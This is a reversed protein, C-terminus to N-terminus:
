LQGGPIVQQEVAAVKAAAGSGMLSLSAASKLNALRKEILDEIVKAMEVPVQAVESQAKQAEAVDRNAQAQLRTALATQVPDPPAPPPMEAREQETPEIKGQQILQKRVRKEIEAAGQVDLNKVILDPAVDAIIPMRDSADMLTSVAEQRATAYAPGLTVAVGYRGEKLNNILDGGGQAQQNVTVFDEAADEGIVRVVRETDYVTPIMDVCIEWTFKVAKTLNDLYEYSGSDGRMGRQVLARGSEPQGAEDTNMAPNFYGTTAKIDEADQAALAILAQPVDPPPERTPRANPAEPDIDYELYPRNTLNAKQWQEERGKFMKATGIYPARPTLAALEVMTSRHYNYTRQPDHSHRHLSQLIQEGEINVYRGPVRIVPIFKWEYYIPGELIGGACIKWWGVKWGMVTRERAKTLPGRPADSGAVEKAIKDFEAGDMVRGDSLEVIKRRQPTRKFYEAIRVEKDTVWGKGDRSFDLSAADFDPWEDKFRDRAMREAVICQNQDRKCPDTATPDFLVTFVNPIDRIRLEQKFSDDDCYEPIVRWAGWGGAVAYKFQQDYIGEANSSVEINRILGSYIEATKVHARGSMASVKGSFKSQRQDGVVQNVAQVTRNYTYCPRGQRNAKVTTEWQAGEVYCFRLDEAMRTRNVKDAGEADSYFTKAEALLDTTESNLAKKARAM